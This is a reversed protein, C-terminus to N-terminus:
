QGRFEPKRKELFAAIGEQYDRSDLCRRVAEEAKTMDSHLMAAQIEIKHAALSLPALEAMQLAYERTFSELEENSLVRNLMSMRYAEEADLTRSSFLIDAANAAGVIAVLQRVGMEPPYALGLRAAPIGFKAHDAAFRLDCILALLVGGGFCAGNIMAIVPQPARRLAELANNAIRDYEATLGANARIQPFEAVDAGSIFAKDGAGRIIIVRVSHDAALQNAATALERWVESNVANRSAPRNIILWALPPERKVILSNEIVDNM